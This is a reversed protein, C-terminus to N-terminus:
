VSEHHVSDTTKTPTKSETAPDLIIRMSCPHSTTSTPYTNSPPLFSLLSHSSILPLSISPIASSSTRTGHTPRSHTSPLPAQIYAATRGGLAVHDYVHTSSDTSVAAAGAETDLKYMGTIYFRNLEEAPQTVPGYSLFPTQNM